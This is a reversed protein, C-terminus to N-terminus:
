LTVGRLEILWSPCYDGIPLIEGNRYEAVCVLGNENDFFEVEDCYPLIEKLNVFREEFRRKVTEAPIDHGGKEVRNKIRKLSEEASSVAVYYLRVTYGKERAIKLTKCTKKGSLTTEQTFNVGKSLCDAIKEVAVRGAQVASRGTERAIKDADICLGLDNREKKLVGTMSSKGVGNVGGIITLKM